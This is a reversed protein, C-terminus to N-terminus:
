AKLIAVEKIWNLRCIGTTATGAGAKEGELNFIFERNGLPLDGAIRLIPLDNHEGVAFQITLGSTEDEIIQEKIIWNRGGPKLAM